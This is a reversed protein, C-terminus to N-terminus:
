GKVKEGYSTVIIEATYTKTQQKGLKLVVDYYARACRNFNYTIDDDSDSYDAIVIPYEDEVEKIYFAGISGDVVRAFKNPLVNNWAFDAHLFAKLLLRSSDNEDYVLKSTRFTSQGEYEFLPMVADTYVRDVIRFGDEITETEDILVLGYAGPDELMKYEEWQEDTIHPNLIKLWAEEDGGTNDVYQASEGYMGNGNPVEAAAAAQPLIVMAATLGSIVSVIAKKIKGM